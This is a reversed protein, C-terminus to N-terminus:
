RVESSLAVEKSDAPMIRTHLINGFRARARAPGAAGAEAGPGPQDAQFVADLGEAAPESQV